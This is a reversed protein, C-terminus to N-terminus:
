SSFEDLLAATELVVYDGAISTFSIAEIVEAGENENHGGASTTSTTTTSAFSTIAAGCCFDLPPSLVSTSVDWVRITGNSCGIVIKNRYQHHKRNTLTASKSITASGQSPPAGPSFMPPALCGIATVPVSIPLTQSIALGGSPFLRATAVATEHVPSEMNQLLLVFCQAEDSTDGNISNSYIPPIPIAARVAYVPHSEIAICEAATSDLKWSGVMGTVSMATIICNCSPSTSGRLQQNKKSNNTHITDSDGNPTILLSCVDDLGVAGGSASAGGGATGSSTANKSTTIAPPLSRGWSYSKWNADFEIVLGSSSGDGIALLTHPGLMAISFFPDDSEVTLTTRAVCTTNTTNNSNTGCRVAHINPRGLSAPGDPLDFVGSLILVPEGKPTLALALSSPTIFLNRAHQSRQVFVSAVVKATAAPALEPLNDTNKEDDVAAAEVVAAENVVAANPARELSIAFVLVQTPEWDAHSGILVAMFRGDVSTVVALAPQPLRLKFSVPEDSTPLALVPLRASTSDVDTSARSGLLLSEPPHLPLPTTNGALGGGGGLRGRRFISSQHFPLRRDTSRPLSYGHAFPSFPRLTPLATQPPAAAAASQLKKGTTAVPIACADGSFPAESPATEDLAYIDIDDVATEPVMDAALLNALRKSTPGPRREQGSRNNGGGMPLVAAAPSSLHRNYAAPTAETEEPRFPMRNDLFDGGSAGGGDGDVSAGKKKLEQEAAVAGAVEVAGQDAIPQLGQETVPSFIGPLLRNSADHALDTGSIHKTKVKELSPGAAAPVAGRVAEPTESIDFLGAPTAPISESLPPLPLPAALRRSRPGHPAQTREHVPTPRTPPVHLFPTEETVGLVQDEKEQVAKDEENEVETEKAETMQAVRHVDLKRKKNDGVQRAAVEGKKANNKKQSNDIVRPMTLKIIPSQTPSDIIPDLADEASATTGFKGTANNATNHHPAPLATALSSHVLRSAGRSRQSRRLPLGVALRSQQQQPPRPLPHKRHLHEEPDHKVQKWGSDAAPAAAPDKGDDVDDGSQQQQQTKRNNKQLLRALPDTTPQKKTDGSILLGQATLAAAKPGTTAAVASGGTDGGSDNPHLHPLLPKSGLALGPASMKQTPPTQYSSDKDTSLKHMRAPRKIPPLPNHSTALDGGAPAQNVLTQRMQSCYDLLLSMLEYLILLTIPHCQERCLISVQLAQRLNQIKLERAKRDDQPDPLVSDWGLERFRAEVQSSGM